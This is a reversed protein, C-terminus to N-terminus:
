PLSTGAPLVPVTLRYKRVKEVAYRGCTTYRLTARLWLDDQDETRVTFATFDRKGPKLQDTRYFSTYTGTNEPYGIEVGDGAVTVRVDCIKRGTRWSVAVWSTREAPVADLWRSVPRPGRDHAAAPTTTTVTALGTAALAAVALAAIRRSRM